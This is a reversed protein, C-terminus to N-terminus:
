LAMLSGSRRLIPRLLARCSNRMQDGNMSGFLHINIPISLTSEPHTTPLGSTVALAHAEDMVSCEKWPM